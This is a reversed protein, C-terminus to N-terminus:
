GPVACRTYSISCCSVAEPLKSNTRVLATTRRVAVVSARFALSLTNCLVRIRAYRLSAGQRLQRGFRHAIMLCTMKNFNGCKTQNQKRQM